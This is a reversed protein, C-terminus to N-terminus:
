KKQKEYEELTRSDLYRTPRKSVPKSEEEEEVEEKEKEKAANKLATTRISKPPEIKSAIASLKASPKVTPTLLIPKAPVQLSRTLVPASIKKVKNLMEETVHIVEEEGEVPTGLDVVNLSFFDSDALDLNKNRSPSILKVKNQQIYKPLKAPILEDEFIDDIDDGVLEIDSEDTIIKKSQSYDIDYSEPIHEQTNIPISLTIFNQGSSANNVQSQRIRIAIINTYIPANLTLPCRSDLTLSKGTKVNQYLKKRAASDKSSIKCIQDSYVKGLIVTIYEVSMRVSFGTAEIPTPMSRNLTGYVKSMANLCESIKKQNMSNDLCWKKLASRKPRLSGVSYMLHHWMVILIEIDSLGRKALEGNKSPPGAYKRFNEEYFKINEETQESATTISSKKYPYYFYSQNDFCDILCTIVIGPFIPYNSEIWKWLIASGRVSLPFHTAFHGMDTVKGDEIMGLFTLTKISTKLSNDEIRESFVESPDLGVSLIKIIMNHLPVRKIEPLRQEEINASDFYNQTCMRTVKGPCVRGTRGARQHASSRSINDLTLIEGGSPTAKTYKETMTDYIWTVFGITISSEALNTSIIVRRIGIDPPTFIKMYNESGMSGFIPIIELNSIINNETTTKTKRSSSSEENLSDSIMLNKLEDAVSLVEKLGPCFCLWTDWGPWSVGDKDPKKSFPKISTQKHNTYIIGATDKYLQKSDVDYDINHYFIQVPFPKSNISVVKAKSFGVEEMDLTASICMLKPVRVNHVLATKWLAIITDQNLSNLHVEDMVIISCFNIDGKPAGDQFNSLMKNEMHGGTCYVLETDDTYGVNSEAAFGIRIRDGYLDTMRKYLSITAPITPEVVFIKIKAELKESTLRLINEILTTSKGSGTPAAVAFVLDEPKDSLILKLVNSIIEETIIGTNGSTTKSM